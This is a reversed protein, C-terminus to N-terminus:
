QNVFNGDYYPNCHVIAQRWCEVIFNKRFETLMQNQLRTRNLEPVNEIENFFAPHNAKLYNVFTQLRNNDKFPIRRSGNSSPSPLFFATYNKLGISISMSIRNKNELFSDNIVLDGSIIQSFWDFAKKSTFYLFKIKKCQNLLNIMDHNLSRNENLYSDDSQKWLDSDKASYNERNTSEIVDQILIKNEDLISKAAHERNELNNERTPNAVEFITSIWEWFKNKKSGYFFKMYAENPNFRQQIENGPYITNTINYVPFTGIILKEFSNYPSKSFDVYNLFPHQELENIPM